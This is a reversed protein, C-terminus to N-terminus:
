YTYSRNVAQQVLVQVGAPAAAGGAAPVIEYVKYGWAPAGAGFADFNLGVSSGSSGSDAAKRAAAGSIAGASHFATITDTSTPAGLANWDIACGAIRCGANTTTVTATLNNTASSSQAQSVVASTTATGTYTTPKVAKTQTTGTGTWTTTVTMSARGATDYAWWAMAAGGSAGNQVTGIATWTLAGGTNDTISAGIGSPNSDAIADVTILSGAASAFAASTVNSTGTNSTWAPDVGVTPM